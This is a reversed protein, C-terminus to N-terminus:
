NDLTPGYSVPGYVTWNSILGVPVGDVAKENFDLLNTLGWDAWDLTGEATLDIVTLSSINTEVSGRLTGTPPLVTLFAM